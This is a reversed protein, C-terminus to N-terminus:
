LGMEKDRRQEYARDDPYRKVVEAFDTEVEESLLNLTEASVIDIINLALGNAVNPTFMLIRKISAQYSAHINRTEPTVQIVGAEIIVGIALDLNGDRIELLEEHTLYSEVHRDQKDGAIRVHGDPNSIDFEISISTEIVHHAM